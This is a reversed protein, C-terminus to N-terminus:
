GFENEHFPTLLIQNAQKAIRHREGELCHSPPNPQKFMIESILAEVVRM